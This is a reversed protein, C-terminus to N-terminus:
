AKSIDFLTKEAIPIPLTRFASGVPLSCPCVELYILGASPAKAIASGQLARGQPTLIV